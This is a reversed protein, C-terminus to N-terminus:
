NATGVPLSIRAVPQVNADAPLEDFAIVPLRPFRSRIARHLRERIRSTTLLVPRQATRPLYALEDQIARLLSLSFDEDQRAVDSHSGASFRQVMEDIKPDLLYVVVTDTDRAYKQRVQHSLGARVFAVLRADDDTADTAGPEYDIARELIRRLNRISIEEAALARLLRTLRSLGVGARSTSVLAPFARALSDLQRQVASRRIASHGHKRLAAAFSLMLHAANNWTTLGGAHAAPVSDSKIVCAPQGTAPNTAATADIKTLTLREITDNVLCQDPALGLLPLTSLHAVKFAFSRPKLHAAPVFRFPPYTVGLEVFLGERMFTYLQAPDTAPEATVEQLYEVPLQIEIAAPALADVLEEAADEPPHEATAALRDAILRRDAISLGLELLTYLIRRLRQVDPASGDSPTASHALPLSAGYLALQAPGLLLTANTRVIEQCALAVFEVGRPDQDTDSLAPGNRRLEDLIAIPALGADLHERKVYSCVWGLLEDAYHCERDNITVGLVERHEASDPTRNVSISPEGPIGLATLLDAVSRTLLQSLADISGGGLARASVRVVIAIPASTAKM